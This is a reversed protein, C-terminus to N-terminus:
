GLIMKNRNFRGNELFLPTPVEAHNRCGLKLARWDDEILDQGQGCTALPLTLAVIELSDEHDEVLLLRKRGTNANPMDM